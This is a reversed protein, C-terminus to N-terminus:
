KECKLEPLAYYGIGINTIVKRYKNLNKKCFYYHVAKQSDDIKYDPMKIWGGEDSQLLNYKRYTEIVDKTLPYDDDWWYFLKNNKEVYRSPMKGKSGVITESTVLIRKNNRGIRVILFDKNNELETISISFVNHKKFLIERNSFDLIANAIAENKGGNQLLDTKFSICSNLLVLLLMMPITLKYRRM